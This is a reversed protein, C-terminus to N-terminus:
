WNIVKLLFNIFYCILCNKIVFWYILKLVVGYWIIIIIMFNWKNYFWWFSVRGEGLFIKIIVFFCEWVFVVYSKDSRICLCEDFEFGNCVVLFFM